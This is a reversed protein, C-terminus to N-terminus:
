GINMRAFRPLSHFKGVNERGVIQIIWDVHEPFVRMRAKSLANTIAINLKTHGLSEQVAPHAFLDITCGISLSPFREKCIRYAKREDIIAIARNEVAYAITASEGDDLTTGAPGIVMQEFTDLEVENLEKIEVLGASVIAHLYDADGCGMRRGDDLEALVEKSVLVPNPLAKFIEEAHGSANLNILVSTDLVIAASSNFL